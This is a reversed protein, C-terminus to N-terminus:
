KHAVGLIETISNIKNEKMWQYIENCINHFVEVNRYHIASGIEVAQAGAM